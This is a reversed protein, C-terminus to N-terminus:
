QDDDLDYARVEIVVRRGLLTRMEVKRGDRRVREGPRERVLTDKIWEAFDASSEGDLTALGRMKTVKGSAM